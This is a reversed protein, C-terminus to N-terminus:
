AVQKTTEKSEEGLKRILALAQPVPLLVRGRQRGPLRVRTLSILGAKEVGYWFSRSLHTVCDGGIPPLPVFEPLPATSSVNLEQLKKALLGNM